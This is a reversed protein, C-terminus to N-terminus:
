MRCILNIMRSPAGVITRRHMAFVSQTDNLILGHFPVDPFHYERDPFMSRYPMYGSSYRAVLKALHINRHVCIGRTCSVDRPLESKGRFFCIYSNGTAETCGQCRLFTNMFYKLALRTLAIYKGSFFTPGPAFACTFFNATKVVM